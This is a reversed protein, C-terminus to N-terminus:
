WWRAGGSYQDLWVAEERVHAGTTPADIMMGGGIYLGVHHINGDYADPDSPDYAFFVLDGPQLVSLGQAATFKAPAQDYQQQAVRPLQVGAQAYAYLTLGSCDFGNTTAGYCQGDLMGGGVAPDCFGVTPGSSNGGGYAYPTGLYKEAAAIAIQGETGAQPDQGQATYVTIWSEVQRVYQDSNNYEFIAASFQSPDSLNRGNGCLYVAATLAADDINQPDGLPLHMQQRLATWTAPIIQFPGAARVYVSDGDLPDHGTDRLLRNGNTGDLEPGYIPPSVTGDAAISHGAMQSSEVQAIAALDAWTLGQCSPVYTTVDNVAATYAALVQAPIGPLSAPAAADASGGSLILTAAAAVALPIALTAAVAGAIVLRRAAPHRAIYRLAHKAALAPLM